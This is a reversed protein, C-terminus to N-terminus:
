TLRRFLRVNSLDIQKLVMSFQNIIIPIFYNHTGKKVNYELYVTRRGAQASNTFLEHETLWPIMFLLKSVFVIERVWNFELSSSTDSSMTNRYILRVCGIWVERLQYSCPERIIACDYEEVNELVKTFINLTCRNFTSLSITLIFLMCCALLVHVHVCVCEAVKGNVYMKRESWESEKHCHSIQIAPFNFDSYTKTCFLVAVCVDYKWNETLSLKYNSTELLSKSLAFLAWLAAQVLLIAITM